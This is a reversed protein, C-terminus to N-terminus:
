IKIITRRIKSVKPLQWSPSFVYQIEENFLCGYTKCFGKKDKITVAEKQGCELCDYKKQM